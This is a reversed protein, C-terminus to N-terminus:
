IVEWNGPNMIGNPDLAKKVKRILEVTNPDMKEIMLKQAAVEPRWVMGGLDLTLRDSEDTAKRVRDADEEDARNFSHNFAFMVSHGGTLVQAGVSYLM